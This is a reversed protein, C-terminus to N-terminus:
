SCKDMGWRYVVDINPCELGYEHALDHIFRLGFPFDETFYRSDYDPIWGDETKKMPSFINVFSPISKIKNAMSQADFSDYHHLLTDIHTTDVKLIKLLRFFEEDMKIELESTQEDWERYFYSQRQYPKGDWDKWMTYLRGTHLIPNSNSLTVEYFSNALITKEGFLEEITQRFQERDEINETAMILEDKFGLLNAEKGYEVVRSIYPVRQFSFLKTEKPLYKHAFLFFGTNGVVSGVKTEEALYPKIKLLTQEVLFAPLCLLVIDSNPILLEASDSIQKLHAQLKDGDPTNVIFDCNWDGPHNTLMNVAVNPLRSFMGACTHGLSGGGCITITM